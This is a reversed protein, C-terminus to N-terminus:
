VEAPLGRLRLAKFVDDSGKSGAEGSFMVRFEGIVHAFITGNRSLHISNAKIM